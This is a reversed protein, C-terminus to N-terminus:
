KRSLPKINMILTGATSKLRLRVESKKEIANKLIILMTNFHRNERKLRYFQASELFVVEAYLTGETYLIRVPTMQRKIDKNRNMILIKEKIKSQQM